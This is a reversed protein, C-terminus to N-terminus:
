DVTVVSFVASYRDYEIIEIFIRGPAFKEALM